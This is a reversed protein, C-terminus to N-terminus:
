TEEPPTWGLKILLDRAEDAIFVDAMSDVVEAKAVVPIDLTVRTVESCSAEVTFAQVASSIDEGDLLIKGQGIRTQEFSFTRSM